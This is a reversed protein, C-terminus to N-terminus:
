LSKTASDEKELIQLADEYSQTFLVPSNHPFLKTMIMALRKMFGMVWGTGMPDLVIVRGTNKPQKQFATSFHTVPNGQPLAAQPHIILHVPHSKSAILAHAKNVAEHFQGWDAQEVFTMLVINDHNAYWDVAIKDM